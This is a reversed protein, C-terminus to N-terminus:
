ANPIVALFTTKQSTKGLAIMFAGGNRHTTNTEFKLEPIAIKLKVTGAAVDLLTVKLSKKPQDAQARIELTVSANLAVKRGELADILKAGEFGM